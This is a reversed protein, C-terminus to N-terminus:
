PRPNRRGNGQRRSRRQPNWRSSGSGEDTRCPSASRKPRAGVAQPHLCQRDRHRRRVDVDPDDRPFQVPHNRLRHRAAPADFLRRHRPRRGPYIRREVCAPHRLLIRHSRARAARRGQLRRHSQWTREVATRRTRGYASRRAGQVRVDRPRPAAPQDGGMRAASCQRCRGSEAAHDRHGLGVTAQVEGQSPNWVDGSRPADDHHSGNIFHPIARMFVRRSQARDKPQASGLWAERRLSACRTMPCACSVSRGISCRCKSPM